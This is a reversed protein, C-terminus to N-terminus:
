CTFDSKGSLNGCKKGSVLTLGSLEVRTYLLIQRYVTRDSLNCDESFVFQAFEDYGTELVNDDVIVGTQSAEQLTCFFKTSIFRKM